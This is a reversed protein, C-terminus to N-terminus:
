VKQLFSTISVNEEDKPNDTIDSSLIRKSWIIEVRKIDKLIKQYESENIFSSSFATKKRLCDILEYTTPQKEANYSPYLHGLSTHMDEMIFIGNNKVYPWFAKLANQQQRMTHGGDDIVVDFNGLMNALNTLSIEDDCDVNHLTVDKVTSIDIKHIDICHIEAKPFYERWMKISAGRFVGIELLRIPLDRLDNLIRDYHHLFFHTTKDTQHKCGLEFLNNLLM